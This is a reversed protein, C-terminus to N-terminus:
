GDLKLHLELTRAQITELSLSSQENCGLMWM